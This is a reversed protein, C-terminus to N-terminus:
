RVRELGEAPWGKEEFYARALEAKGWPLVFVPHVRGVRDADDFPLSDNPADAAEWNYAAALTGAFLQAASSPYTYRHQAASLGCLNYATHYGDVPKGPKDRLGGKPGQCACLIYRIMGERSWLEQGEGSLGLAAEVLAWCGGVWHNYCGDVLKNARGAFGGEPALQRSSLWRVLAPVDLAAPISEAPPGMICLCALACFAYAGHAENDPAGGIGGEFTQCRSLWAGLGTILTPEEDGSCQAKLAAYAPASSPLTLPLNLLSTVVLACYAGRVDEEGGQAVTFGGSPQKMRSLFSHMTTRNIVDYCPPGGATLLALTTAYSCIVHPTQGHGGGFGGTPHQLPRYTEALGERTSTVDEGLLALATLSWYPIWPRSADLIIFQEPWEALADTAYPVTGERNLHPVGHSNLPFKNPNGTMFPLVKEVTKEQEQSTGTELDDQIVPKQSFLAPAQPKIDLDVLDPVVEAAGGGEMTEFESDSLEEIRASDSLLEDLRRTPSPHRVAQARGQQPPSPQQQSASRTKFVVKRRRM